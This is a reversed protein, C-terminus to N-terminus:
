QALAKGAFVTCDHFLAAAEEAMKVDPFLGFISAGSGSMACYLPNLAQMRQLVAEIEPRLPFISDQFDNHMVPLAAWEAIPRLLATPLDEGPTLDRPTIGAYAQATNVAQSAPKAILLGMNEIGPVTVPTLREGIGEALMPRNYIFVPCDAGVTAAIAAMEELSLGLSFMENVGRIAFAADASGGGLGAGDRINKHLYIDLPPLTRGLHKEVARIAKIVLNKEPPCGGLAHGSLHFSGYGEAPVMELVDCWPVPVMVSHIDHYGDPRRRLVRLGLNIKANPFLIM